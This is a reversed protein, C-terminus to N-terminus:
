QGAITWVSLPDVRAGNKHTEIHVHPGTSKGSSGVTAIQTGQTVSQGPSVTFGDLHAFMTLVGDNTQLVVVNGYAPKGDYVDTAATIVGNAPAYIPTGTPAAIDIGYHDRTQGKNFPDPAPGFSSTLRGTVMSTFVPATMVPESVVPKNVASQSVAPAENAKATQPARDGANATTSISIMGVATVASAVLALWLKDRRRKYTPQSGTMISAIRMKENRIRHTSFSAAPYQRVRGAVIHLARLLTNAYATRMQPDRHATVAMDCRIETSQSWRAFMWHAFPSVWAACLLSRLILGMEDDRRAIHAREHTLIDALSDGSMHQVYIAPIVIRAREPRGFPTWAFPSGVRPSVVVDAQGLRTIPDASAIILRLRLRGLALRLGMIVVGLAYVALMATIAHAMTFLGYERPAIEPGATLIRLSQLPEHLSLVDFAPSPTWDPLLILGIGLLPIAASLALGTAWLASWQEARADLKQFLRAGGYLVGSVGMLGLVFTWLLDMM